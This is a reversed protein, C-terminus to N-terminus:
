LLGPAPPQYRGGVQGYDGSWSFLEGGLWASAACPSLGTPWAATDFDWDAEQRDYIWVGEDNGLYYIRRTGDTGGSTSAGCVDTQFDPGGSPTSWSSSWSSLLFGYTRAAPADGGLGGWVRVGLGLIGGLSDEWLDYSGGRECDAIGCSLSTWASGPARRGGSSMASLNNSGGYVFLGSGDWIMAANYRAAPPSSATETGWTGSPSSLFELSNVASPTYYCESLGFATYVGGNGSAASAAYRPVTPADASAWTDSSPDYAGASATPSDHTHTGSECGNFAVLKGDVPRLNGAVVGPPAGDDDIAQWAPECRQSSCHRGNLCSYGLAGCSSDTTFLQASASGAWATLSLAVLGALGHRTM